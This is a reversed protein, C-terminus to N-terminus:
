PAAGVARRVGRAIEVDERARVVLVGVAAGERGIPADGSCEANRREDLEVGLFGLGEVARARVVADHEGIGGTFVLADLGGLSAAMAAVGQRLRHVFVELALAADRSGAGASRHLERFDASGGLGLVGSAHELGDELDAAGLEGNRLLWMLLGPDVDGSRTAMVLGALPTFGMTTDVSRGDRVAALSCGAGLHCTVVRSGGALEAARRSAYAHSLGHFGYRRLGWERRWRAPLAYTRAVEPMTHHFATDFCAVQPVDPLHATVADIGALARPQHLPALDTLREIEARTGADVVVPEGFRPGGHVVRHGVATIGPADALFDSVGGSGDWREVHEQALVADDEALVSLKLSSSGANVVLVAGM